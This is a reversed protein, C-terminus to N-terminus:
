PRAPAAPRFRDGVRVVATVECELVHRTRRGGVLLRGSRCRRVDTVRMSGDLFIVSIARDLGFTQVSRCRRFLMGERPAPPPYGRLGRMRERKTEPVLVRWGGGPGDLEVVKM